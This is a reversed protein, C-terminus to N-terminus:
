QVLAKAKGGCKGTKANFTSSGQTMCCMNRCTSLREACGEIPCDASAAACLKPCSASFTNCQKVCPALSPGGQLRRRGAAAPDAAAADELLM